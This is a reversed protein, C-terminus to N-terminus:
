LKLFSFLNPTFNVCYHMLTEFQGPTGRGRCNWVLANMAGSPGWRSNGDPEWAEGRWAQQQTGVVKSDEQAGGAVSPQQEIPRVAAGVDMATPGGFEGAGGKLHRGHEHSIDRLPRKKIQKNIDKIPSSGKVGGKKEAAVKVKAEKLREQIGKVPVETARGKILDAVSLSLESSGSFSNLGSVYDRADSTEQLKSAEDMSMHKVSNSLAQNVRWPLRLPSHDGSGDIKLMSGGNEGRWKRRGINSNTVSSAAQIKDLQAGSFNLARNVLRPADRTLLREMGRKLPSKRMWEGLKRKKKNEEDKEEDDEDSDDEEEPCERKSHGMRGCTFCFLPVNEYGVEISMVGTDKIKAEVMPKLPQDLVLAVRARLFNTNRVPGGGDLVRTSVKRALVALFASTRLHFPVDYFRVWVNVADIVVESPRRFGNYPVVILADGKHRWPGGNTVFDHMKESELEVIFRNNELRQVPITHQANWAKEM